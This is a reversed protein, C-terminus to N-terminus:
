HTVPESQTQVLSDVMKQSLRNWQRVVRPFFSQHFYDVRCQFEEFKMNHDGNRASIYNAKTLMGDTNIRCSGKIIKVFLRLDQEVRRDELTAWKLTTLIESVSERWSYRSSVFRAARRQVMEIEKVLGEEHPNWITGGYELLPRVLSFYAVEKVHKPCGRLIRQVFNLRSNAKGVMKQIHARWSMASTINLGLYKYNNEFKLSDGGLFYDSQYIEHGRSIRMVCCKKVNLQLQWMKCWRDIANLDEQLAIRDHDDHIKKYILTDDAYLRIKSKVVDCLDNIYLLFLLPGLVSGQPVGSTVSVWDSSDGSVVVQQRRDSLFSKIWILIQQHIGYGGVKALLRKHPVTDFAKSFDL